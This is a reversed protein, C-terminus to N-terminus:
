SSGLNLLKRDFPTQTRKERLRSPASRPFVSSIGFHRQLLIRFEPATGRTDNPRIVPRLLHIMALEEARNAEFQARLNRYLIALILNPSQANDSHTRVCQKIERPASAFIIGYDNIRAEFRAELHISAIEPYLAPMRISIPWCAVGPKPPKPESRVKM